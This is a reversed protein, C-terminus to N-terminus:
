PIPHRCYVLMEELPPPFYRTTIFASYNNSWTAGSAPLAALCLGMGMYSLLPFGHISKRKTIMVLLLYQKHACVCSSSLSLLTTCSPLWVGALQNFIMRGPMRRQYQADMNHDISVQWFCLIMNDYQLSVSLAWQPWMKQLPSSVFHQTKM